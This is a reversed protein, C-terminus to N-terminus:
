PANTDTLVMRGKANEKAQETEIRHELAKVFNSMLSQPNFEEQIKQRAARLAESNPTTLVKDTLDKFKEDFRTLFVNWGPCNTLEQLHARARAANALEQSM